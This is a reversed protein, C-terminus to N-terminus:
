LGLDKITLLSSLEINIKELNEKADELRDVVTIAKTCRGGVQRVAETASVISRGTTVVDEVLLVFDEENIEGEIRRGAGYDKKEKRIIVFPLNMSVSLAVALPVAGLEMGAIRDVKFGRLKETMSRVIEKMVEPRTYAGKLDIYYSSKEGSSLTFEGHKVGFKKIQQILFGKFM